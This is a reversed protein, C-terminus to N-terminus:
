LINAIVSIKRPFALIIVSQTSVTMRYYRSRPLPTNLPPSRLLSFSSSVPDTFPAPNGDPEVEQSSPIPSTM